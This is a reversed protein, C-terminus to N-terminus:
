ARPVAPYHRADYQAASVAPYPLGQPTTPRAAPRASTYLATSPTYDVVVPHAAVPGNVAVGEVLLSSSPMSPQSGSPASAGPGYVSPRSASPGSSGRPGALAALTTAAALPRSAATGQLQLQQGPQPQGQLLLQQQQAQQQQPGQLQQQQGNRGLVVNTAAGKFVKKALATPRLKYVNLGTEVASRAVHMGTGTAQAAEPGYRHGVVRTTAATTHALVIRAADALSDYVAEVADVGAIGVKRLGQSTSGSSSTTSPERGTGTSSTVSQSLANAMHATVSLAGGVARGSAEAVRSAVSRARHTAPSVTAHREAPKVWGKAVAEEAGRHLASGAWTAAALIGAAAMQGGWQLGAAVRDSRSPGARPGAEAEPGAQEAPQQLSVNQLDHYASCSALVAQLLDVLELPTESTLTVCYYTSDTRGGGPPGYPLQFSYTHDDYRLVASHRGLPWRVGAVQAQLGSEPPAAYAVVFDGSGVPVATSRVSDVPANLSFQM